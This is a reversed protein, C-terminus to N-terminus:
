PDEPPSPYWDEQCIEDLSWSCASPLREATDPEGHRTLGRVARRRGETYLGDLSAEAERRLTGTLKDSLTERAEDITEMWGVRPQQAPSYTLKLFHEIIRRIQSRM